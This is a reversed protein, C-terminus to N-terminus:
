LVWQLRAVALRGILPAAVVEQHRQDFVNAVEVLLRVDGGVPLHWGASVDVVEYGPIRGRQVGQAVPFPGLARARLEVTLRPGEDAYRLAVAGRHRPNDLAM